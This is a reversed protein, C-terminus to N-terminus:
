FYPNTKNRFMVKEFLFLCHYLSIKGKQANKRWNGCINGNPFIENWATTAGM